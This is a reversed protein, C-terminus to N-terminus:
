LVNGRGAVNASTGRLRVDLGLVPQGMTPSSDCLWVLYVGSTLTPSLFNPSLLLSYLPLSHALSVARVQIPALFVNKRKKGIKGMIYEKQQRPYCTKSNYHLLKTNHDNM